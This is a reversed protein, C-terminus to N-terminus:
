RGRGVDAAVMVRDAGHEDLEVRLAAVRDGRVGAAAGASQGVRRGVRGTPETPRLDARRQVREGGLARQDQVAALVQQERDVGPAVRHRGERDPAGLQTVRRRDRGAALERGADRHVTVQDVHEVGATVPADGPEGDAMPREPRDGAGRARETEAVVARRHEDICRGLDAETRVAARQDDGGLAVVLQEAERHVGVAPRRGSRDDRLGGTGHGEREHDVVVAQDLDGLRTGSRGAGVRDGAVPPQPQEARGDTVTLVRQAPADLDAARDVARVGAGRRQGRPTGRGAARGHEGRRDGRGGAVSRDVQRARPVAM